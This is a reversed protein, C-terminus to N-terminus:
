VGQKRSAIANAQAVIEARRRDVDARVAALHEVNHGHIPSPTAEMIERAWIEEYRELLPTGGVPTGNAYTTPNWAQGSPNTSRYYEARAKDAADAAARRALEAPSLQITM